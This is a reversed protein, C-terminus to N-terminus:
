ASALALAELPAPPLAITVVTGGSAQATVELRAAAGYLQQLRVRINKLGTGQHRDLSFGPPLGVGDDSVWVQLTGRRLTAGIELRSRGPKRAVAHRLANEVLPQLLFTPVPVALCDDDVAYSVQLRDGFRAAQLDVYQKVFDLEASLPTVHHVPRDITARMMASLGLLMDLAKDNTKLRILAAISNLTNFLFHPQIELRLADLNARVLDAELRSKRLELRRARDSVAMTNGLLLLMAYVLVDTAFQTGFQAVFTKPFGDAVFPMFPRVWVALQATFALHAAISLVGVSAVTSARSFRRPRATSLSGGLSLVTPALLVWLMWSCWQWLLMRWFAHGHTLMSLYTQATVSLAILTASPLGLALVRRTSIPPEDASSGARDGTGWNSTIDDTM